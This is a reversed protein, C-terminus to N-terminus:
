DGGVGPPCGNNSTWYRSPCGDVDDPFGDGDSDPVQTPQQPEQTPQPNNGTQPELTEQVEPVETATPAPAYYADGVWIPVEVLYEMDDLTVLVYCVQEGEDPIACGFYRGRGDLQPPYPDDEITDLQLWDDADATLLALWLRGNSAVTLLPEVETCEGSLTYTPLDPLWDPPLGGSRKPPTEGVEATAEPTTKPTAETETEFPALACSEGSVSLLLDASDEEQATLLFPAILLVLLVPIMWRTM